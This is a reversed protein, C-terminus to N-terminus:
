LVIKSLSELWRLIQPAPVSPPFRHSSDPLLIHGANKPACRLIEGPRMQAVEDKGAEVILVPRGNAHQLSECLDLSVPVILVLGRVAPDAAFLRSAAATGRSAGMLIVPIGAVEKRGRLAALANQGERVIYTTNSSTYGAVAYGGPGLLKAWERVISRDEIARHFYLVVARPKGSPLELLGEKGGEFTFTLGHLSSATLLLAAVLASRM